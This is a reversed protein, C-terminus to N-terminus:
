YILKFRQPCDCYTAIRSFSVYQQEFCEQSTAFPRKREEEEKQLRESLERQRREDELKQQEWEAQAELRNAKEKPREKFIAYGVLAAIAAISFIDM